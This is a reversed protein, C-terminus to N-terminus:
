RTAAAPWPCASCPPATTSAWASPRPPSSCMSWTCTARHRRRPALRLDPVPRGAAAPRGSGGDPRRCGPCARLHYLRPGPRGGAALLADPHHPSTGTVQWAALTIEGGFVAGVPAAGPPIRDPRIQVTAARGVPAGQRGKGDLLYARLYAADPPCRATSTRCSRAPSGARPAFAGSRNRCRTRTTRPWCAAPPTTSLRRRHCLRRPGSGPGALAPDRRRGAASLRQLSVTQHLDHQHATYAAATLRTAGGLGPPWGWQAAAGGLRSLEVGKCCTPRAARRSSAGSGSTSPRAPCACRCCRWTLGCGRPPRCTACPPPRTGTPRWPPAPRWNGPWCRGPGRDRLRGHEGAWYAPVAAMNGLLLLPLAALAAEGALRRRRRCARWRCPWRGLRRREHVPLGPHPLPRDGPHPLDPLLPLRDPLESLLLVAAAAPTAGGRAPDGLGAGRRGAGGGGVAGVAPDLLHRGLRPGPGALRRLQRGPDHGVPHRGAVPGPAAAALLRLRLAAPGAPRGPLAPALLRGDAYVRRDVLWVYVAIAPLLLVMTRHHALSLGYVFAAVPLSPQPEASPRDAGAASEGRGAPVPPNGAPSGAGWRVLLAAARRGRLGRQPHLGRLHQDADLLHLLARLPACRGRSPLTRGTLACRSCSPSSWPWRASSPRGAPDAPLGHHGAARLHVWAWGALVFLPYGTPHPVGLAAAAAQLDGPDGLDM